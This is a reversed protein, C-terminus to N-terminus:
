KIITRDPINGNQFHKDLWGSVVDERSDFYKVYPKIDLLPTKDIMDVQTFFMINAQIRQIKVVSFGIHNPRHPSRLAFIGHKEDELFPTGEITIKNSKHFYYILICHSFKELDKLGKVYDNKLELYAEVDDKFRGQIPIQKSKKYPSHIVGIPHLTIQKM